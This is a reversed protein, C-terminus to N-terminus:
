PGKLTHITWLPCKKEKFKPPPPPLLKFIFLKLVIDRKFKKTTSHAHPRTHSAKISTRVGWMCILNPRHLLLQGSLSIYVGKYKILWFWWQRFLVHLCLVPLDPMVSPCASLPINKKLSIWKYAHLIAKRSSLLNLPKKFKPILGATERQM